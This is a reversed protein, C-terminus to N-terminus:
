MQYVTAFQLRKIRLTQLLGYETEAAEPARFSFEPLEAIADVGGSDAVGATMGLVRGIFLDTRAAGTVGLRHQDHEIRFLNGVVQEQFREPFIVVRRLAHTLAIIDARLIAGRDVRKTIRLSLRRFRRAGGILLREGCFAEAGDGGLDRGGALKVEGLIIM